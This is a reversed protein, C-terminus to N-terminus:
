QRDEVAMAAFDGLDVAAGTDTRLQVQGTSEPLDAAIAIRVFNGPNVDTYVSSIGGYQWQANISAGSDASFAKGATDTVRPDINRAFYDTGSQLNTADIIVVLYYGMAVRSSNHWYVAKRKHIESVKFRWGNAEIEQGIALLGPAPANTAPAASQAPAEAPAAPAPTPAVPINAALPLGAIAPANDVLFAAIWEGGALQLWTGDANRAVIELVVGAQASGAVAYDTGPGARLNANRNAAPAGGATSTSAATTTAAAPRPIAVEGLQIDLATVHPITVQNGLVATYKQLGAVTGWVTVVDKELFRQKGDYDVWIPDDWSDFRGKTVAIRLTYGPNQCFLCSNEQVQLVQGVYRVTKGVHGENNRFLDDYGITVAQAKQEDLSQQTAAEEATPVAAIEGVTVAPSDAVVTIGSDAVTVTLTYAAGAVTLPVTYTDDALAPRPTTLLLLISVAITTLLRFM